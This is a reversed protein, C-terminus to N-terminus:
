NAVVVAIYGRWTSQSGLTLRGVFATIASITHTEKDVALVILSGHM